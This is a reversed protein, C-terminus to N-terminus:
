DQIRRIWGFWKYDSMQGQWISGYVRPDGFLAFHTWLTAGHFTVDVIIVIRNELVHINPGAAADMVKHLTKPIVAKTANM